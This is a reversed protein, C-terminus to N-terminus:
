GRSKRMKERMPSFATLARPLTTLGSPSIILILHVPILKSKSIKSKSISQSISAEAPLCNQMPLKAPTVIYSKASIRTLSSLNPPLSTSTEKMPSGPTTYPHHNNSSLSPIWKSNLQCLLLQFQHKQPPKSPFM